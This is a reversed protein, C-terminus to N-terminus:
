WPYSSSELRAYQEPTLINDVALLFGLISTQEFRFSHYLKNGAESLHMEEQASCTVQLSAQQPPARGRSLLFCQMCM